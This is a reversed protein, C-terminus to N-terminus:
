KQISRNVASERSSEMKNSKGGFRNKQNTKDSLITKRLVSSQASIRNAMKRNEDNIKEIERFRKEHM